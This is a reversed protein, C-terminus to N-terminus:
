GIGEGTSPKEPVVIDRYALRQSTATMVELDTYYHDYGKPAVMIQFEISPQQSESETAVTKSSKKRPRTPVHLEFAGQGKSATNALPSGSSSAAVVKAGTVPKGTSDLIRGYVVFVDAEVTPVPISARVLDANTYAVQLSQISLRASADEAQQSAEGYKATLRDRDAKLATGEAALLSVANKLETLRLADRSEFVTSLQGLLDASTVNTTDM